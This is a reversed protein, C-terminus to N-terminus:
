VSDCRLVRLKGPPLDVPGTPWWVKPIKAGKWGCPYHGACLVPFVMPYFFVPELVDSFELEACCSVLLPQLSFRTVPNVRSSPIQGLAPRLADGIAEISPGLLQDRKKLADQIVDIFIGNYARVNFHEWARSSASQLAKGESTTEVCTSSDLEGGGHFLRTANLRSIAQLTEPKLNMHTRYISTSPSLSGRFNAEGRARVSRGGIGGQAFKSTRAVIKAAKGPADVSSLEGPM